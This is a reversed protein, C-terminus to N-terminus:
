VQKTHSALIEQLPFTNSKHGNTKATSLPAHFFLKADEKEKKEGKKRKLNKKIM